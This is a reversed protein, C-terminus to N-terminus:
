NAPRSAWCPLPARPPRGSSRTRSFRQGTRAAARSIPRGCSGPRGRRQRQQGCPSCAPSRASAPRILSRRSGASGTRSSLRSTTTSVLLRGLGQGNDRASRRASSGAGGSLGSSAQWSGTVLSLCTPATLCRAPLGPRSTLRLRSLSGPRMVFSCPLMCIVWTAMASVGRAPDPDACGTVATERSPM